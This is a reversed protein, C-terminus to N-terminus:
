NSRLVTRDNQSITQFSWGELRRTQSPAKHVNRLPAPRLRVFVGVSFREENVGPNALENHVSDLVLSGRAIDDDDVSALGMLERADTLNRKHHSADM